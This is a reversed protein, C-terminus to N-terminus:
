WFRMSGAMVGAAVPIAGDVQHGCVYRRVVDGHKPPSRVASELRFPAKRCALCGRRYDHGVHIPIAYGVDDRPIRARLIEGEKQPEPVPVERGGDPNREVVGRGSDHSAIEIVISSGIQGDGGGRGDPM